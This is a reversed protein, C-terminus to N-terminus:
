LIDSLAASEDPVESTPIQVRALKKHECMFTVYSFSNRKRLVHLGPKLQIEM